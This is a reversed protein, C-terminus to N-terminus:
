SQKMPAKPAAPVFYYTKQLAEIQLHVGFYYYQGLALGLVVLLVAERRTRKKKGAKRRESEQAKLEKCYELIDKRARLKAGALEELYKLLEEPSENLNIAPRRGSDQM